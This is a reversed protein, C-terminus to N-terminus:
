HHLVPNSCSDSPRQVIRNASNVALSAKVPWSGYPQNQIDMNSRQDVLNESLVSVLRVVTKKAEISLIHRSQLNLGCSLVDLVDIKWEIEWREKKSSM